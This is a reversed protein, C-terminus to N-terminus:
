DQGKLFSYYQEGIINISFKKISEEANKSMKNRLEEDAMLSRLKREFQELDFLPVLFGTSDNEIMESPGAMCDFAVVPLGASMAEGIVNPFGESSSTFAFVKSKKYYEEVYSVDGTLIVKDEAQKESIKRKLNGMIDHKPGNDGILILKWEHMDLRLFMDILLDHHKTPILRGVSLVINERTKKQGPWKIQKIPNGIVCINPHNFQSLYIQKATTTQAIIGTAKPYLWKRLMNHFFGFSKDPKCRDSIYVPFKLGTLSLLVFSNWLEGFSLISSPHISKIEKRLFFLTRLSFWIRFRKNFKFDPIHVKIPNSIPYYIERKGSYMIIHVETQPKMFFYDALEALVREMGGVGLDPIVLCIKSTNMKLGNRLL